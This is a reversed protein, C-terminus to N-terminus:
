VSGGLNAGVLACGFEGAGEASDWGFRRTASTLAGALGGDGGAGLCSAAGATPPISTVELTVPACTAMSPRLRGPQTAGWLNV